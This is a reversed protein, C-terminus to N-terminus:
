LVLSRGVVCPIWHAKTRFSQILFFSAPVLAEEAVSLSDQSRMPIFRTEGKRMCCFSQISLLTGWHFSPCFSQDMGFAPGVPLLTLAPSPWLPVWLLGQSSSPGWYPCVSPHGFGHYELSPGSASCLPGYQHLFKKKLARTQGRCLETTYPPSRMM